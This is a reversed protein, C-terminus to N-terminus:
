KKCSIENTIRDYLLIGVLHDYELQIIRSIQVDNVNRDYSEIHYDWNEDYYSIKVNSKRKVKVSVGPISLCSEDLIIDVGYLEIVPNIFVKRFGRKVVSADIVFVNLHHGIQSAALGVGINTNYLTDWMNTLLDELGDFDEDVDVSIKNLLHANDDIYKIIPIVM